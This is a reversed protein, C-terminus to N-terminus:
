DSTRGGKAERSRWMCVGRKQSALIFEVFRRGHSTRVSDLMGRAAAFAGSKNRLIAKYLHSLERVEEASFGNRRLGVRNLGICHAREVVTTFPVVNQSIRGAGGVMAYEGIEVFQHVMAGGGLTVRTGVTVHGALLASNVMVVHDGVRCNHAVHTNAMFMCDNGIVTESEPATGRHVSVGERIVVRDGIRCYSREGKYAYDQPAGGLVVFPHIECESGLQLPGTAVVHSVLRTGPGIEIPGELVCYPGITAGEGIRVQPSVIATPHIQAMQSLGRRGALPRPWELYAVRAPM